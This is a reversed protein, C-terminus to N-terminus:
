GDTAEEWYEIVYEKQAKNRGAQGPVTQHTIKAAYGCKLLLAAIQLRDDENWQVSGKRISRIIQRAM